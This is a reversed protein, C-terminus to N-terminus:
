IEAKQRRREMMEHVIPNLLLELVYSMKGGPVVITNRRSMFSGDIMKLLHTFDQSKPYRFRIVVMSEDCEPVNRAIFPNSTDVLPIRQFNVHTRSFQPTIYHVYDHLRHQIMARVAELSYGRHSIDNHIKQIWELNLIPAVGILFDAQSAINVEADVYAGHLGQYVLLDTEGPVKEWGTFTGVEQRYRLAQEDTHIYQRYEGGGTESHEKLTAQLLDLRNGAPGFHTLSEGRISAELSLEAMKGREYRHFASGDIVLHRIKERWAIHDFVSTVKFSGSGSSGTIAIIPHKVSM